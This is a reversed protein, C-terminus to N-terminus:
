GPVSASFLTGQVDLHYSSLHTAVVACEGGKLSLKGTDAVIDVKGETCFLLEVSNRGTIDYQGDDHVGLLFDGTPALVNLRGSADRLQPCLDAPHAKFTLTKLLEPVNVLKNTLGGRLVNDSNTMLEIGNGKVYAHLTRPELFIAEGPKMHVVNLFFPALVGPDGPYTELCDLAIQNPSLWGECAEDRISPLNNRYEELLSILQGKEMTYLLTFFREIAAAEDKEKAEPPFFLQVHNPILAEMNRIINALPLFGCMATVPTLAYLVEAKQRDDKYNWQDRPTDVHSPIEAAYGKQAQESSPHVQLSLPKAIALVKLLFPLDKGFREVHEDSFFQQAHDTLFDGLPEGDSLTAEGNPHTGFWLEAKPKGDPDRGLLSPIFAIDGWEYQQVKPTIPVMDMSATLDSM